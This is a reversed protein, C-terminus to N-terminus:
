LVDELLPAWSCLRALNEETTLGGVAFAVIHDLELGHRVDCGQVVCTPDRAELATRLKAPITRGKHAVAKIDTGDTLLVKLISYTAMARAAAVPIPGIGPVECTEGDEVHGRVLASHDVRVHVTAKPGKAGTGASGADGAMAVLADAAYAESPERRGAKRAEKFIRERYPELGAMVTAGDDPTLRAELHFAGESDTWNRLYRGKRMREYAEREDTATAKVRRCRERLAPVTETRAAQLLEREQGPSLAAAAAVEKTKAESLEGSAFAMATAPLHELRRATELTGV